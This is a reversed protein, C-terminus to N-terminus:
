SGSLPKVAAAIERSALISLKQRAERLTHFYEGESAMSALTAGHTHIQRHRAEGQKPQVALDVVLDGNIMMYMDVRCLQIAGSITVDATAAEGADVVKAGQAELDFKLSSTLWEAPDNIAYVHSMVMGFGNRLNGIEKWDAKTTKDRQAKMDKDWQKDQERTLKAYQFPEPQETKTKVELSVLNPACDFEKLCVTVGNLAGNAPVTPGYEKLLVRRGNTACGSGLLGAALLAVISLSWNLTRTSM